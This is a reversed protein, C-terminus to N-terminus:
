YLRIICGKNVERYVEDWIDEDVNADRMAERIAKTLATCVEWDSVSINSLAEEIRDQRTNEM